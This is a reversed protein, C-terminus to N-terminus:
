LQLGLLKPNGDTTSCLVKNLKELTEISASAEKAGATDDLARRYQQIMSDEMKLVVLNTTKPPLAQSDASRQLM